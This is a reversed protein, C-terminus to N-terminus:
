PRTTARCCTRYRTRETIHVSPYTLELECITARVGRFASEYKLQDLTNVVNSSTTVAPYFTYQNLETLSDVARATHLSVSADRSCHELVRWGGAIRASYGNAITTVSASASLMTVATPEWWLEVAVRAGVSSRHPLRYAQMPSFVDYEFDPGAFMKVELNGRKFRWGPLISARFIATRYRTTPTDFHEMGDSVFASLVFGDSNLSDPAWRAGAYGAYGFNWLDFGSYFLFREPTAGGVM